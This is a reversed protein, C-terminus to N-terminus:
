SHTSAIGQACYPLRAALSLTIYLQVLGSLPDSTERCLEGRSCRRLSQRGQVIASHSQAGAHLTAHCAFVRHDKSLISLGLQDTAVVYSQVHPNTRWMNQPNGDLPEGSHM